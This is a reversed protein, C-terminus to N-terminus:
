PKERRAGIKPWSLMHTEMFSNWTKKREEEM